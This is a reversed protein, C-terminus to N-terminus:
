TVFASRFAAIDSSALWAYFDAGGWAIGAINNNSDFAGAEALLRYEPAVIGSHFRLRRHDKLAAVIAGPAEGIGSQIVAGDPVLGAAHRAIAELAHSRKSSVAPSLLPADIPIALDIRDAPISESRPIRPMQQNLFAARQ